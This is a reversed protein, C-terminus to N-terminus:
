YVLAYSKGINEEIGRGKRTEEKLNQLGPPSDKRRERFTERKKRLAV